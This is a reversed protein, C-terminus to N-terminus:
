IIQLDFHKIGFKHKKDTNEIKIFIEKIEQENLSDIILIENYRKKDLSFLIKDKTNIARININNYINKSINKIYLINEKPNILKITSKLQKKM